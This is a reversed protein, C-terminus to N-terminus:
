RSGVAVERVNEVFNDDRRQERLNASVELTPKIM